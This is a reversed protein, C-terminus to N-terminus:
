PAASDRLEAAVAPPLGAPAEKLQLVPSEHVIKGGLYATYTVTGVAALSGILVGARVWGPIGEAPRKLSRWWSYAAFAGVILIVTLTIEAASDHPDIAGHRIYWPDNLARDAQTGTFYVPYVSLGAATLAGMATLWLGRRKFLLALIAVTLASISLVVPFHNILIHAYPWSLM